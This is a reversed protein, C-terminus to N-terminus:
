PVVVGNQCLFRQAELHTTEMCVEAQKTCCAPDGAMETLGYYYDVNHEASDMARSAANCLNYSFKTNKTPAHLNSRVPQVLGKQKAPPSRALLRCGPQVALAHGKGFWLSKHNMQPHLLAHRSNTHPCPPQRNVFLPLLCCLCWGFCVFIEFMDDTCCAYTPSELYGKELGKRNYGVGWMGKGGSCETPLLSAVIAGVGSFGGLQHLHSRGRSIHPRHLAESSGKFSYHCEGTSVRQRATLARPHYATPTSILNPLPYLVVNAFPRPQGHSTNKKNNPNIFPQIAGFHLLQHGMVSVCNGVPVCACGGGWGCVYM